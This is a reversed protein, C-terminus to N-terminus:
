DDNNINEILCQPIFDVIDTAMLGRGFKNWALDGSYGSIFAACRASQLTTLGQALLSGAIGALVDGTGGVTMGPNGTQNLKVISGDTIIDTPGKLLLTWNSNIKKVFQKALAQLEEFNNNDVKSSIKKSSSQDLILKNFEGHHPTLVGKHDKLLKCVDVKKHSLASFADADLLIPIDKPIKTIAKNIAKLTDKNQGLGPGIVLTSVSLYDILKIIDKIDSEKLYNSSHSLPHLIFNPSFSAIVNAASQPAAIHVLDVGTRLASLGVLSPAGTYPGGGIILLKGHDGKHSAQSPKQIFTLDGPGVFQEAEKPIGIDHVLIEGSNKKDMGIKKAHFTITIDPKVILDTGLGTPVDVSIITRHIKESSKKKPKSSAKTKDTGDSKQITFQKPSKNILNVISLYPERLKGSIGVGLM